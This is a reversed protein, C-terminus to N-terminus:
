ATRWYMLFKADYSSFFNITFNHTTPELQRIRINLVIQTRRLLPLLRSSGPHNLKISHFYTGFNTIKQLKRNDNPFLHNWLVQLSSFNVMTMNEERCYMYRNKHWSSVSIRVCVCQTFCKELFVLWFKMPLWAKFLIAM